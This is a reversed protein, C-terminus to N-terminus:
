KVWVSEIEAVYLTHYDGTPYVEDPITKTVFSDETMDQAFLKRCILVTKAEEFCPVGGCEAVTLGAKAIKDEDRGSVTGLYTLQRRYEHGFFALSFSDASDVFEKTYRQPRIVAFAVNKNWLVGMGGWSATMTNVTGDPKRATVLMWEKGILTFTNEKIGEAPIQRFNKM